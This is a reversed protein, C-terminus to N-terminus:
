VTWKSVKGVSQPPATVVQKFCKDPAVALVFGDGDDPSRRISKKFDKKKILKKLEKGQRNVPEWQRMTLDAELAEPPDSIRIGHLTEAAEFYMETVLDDYLKKDYPNGGFHVENIVLEGPNRDTEFLERLELSHRCTDILGAGGGADIRMHLKRVGKKALTKAMALVAHFYEKSDEHYFQKARWVTNKWRVYMTGYDIGSRAIDIGFTARSMDSKEFAIETRKRAAIYRGVPVVTMDSVNAPAIGLVRWMFENDPQFITGVPLVRNKTPIPFDLQFTFNDVNHEQVVDCHSEIMSRVYERQVANPVVERGAVVNPHNICSMRFSVVNADEHITHFKSSRTKPNAMMLVISIGGSTMGPIADFVVPDVGEAEDLVFMQFPAHLGQIRESGVGKSNTVARGKIFHKARAYIEITELIRGSLGKGERDGKLEQWLNDKLADWTPAYMMITSPAFCDFFHCIMGEAIKTNHEYFETLYTDYVPVEIAVTPKDGIYEISKVKEWRTGPLANKHVWQPRDPRESIQQNKRTVIPRVVADLKAVATEKGYIGIEDIFKLIEISSTTWLVWADVGKKYSRRTHVGFRLLLHAVDDVLQRSKSCYGIEKGYNAGSVSAWGDTSFLRSLFIALQERPLQFVAPPVYKEGALKEMMGHKRMLNILPNTNPKGTRGDPGYAIYDYQNLKTLRCGMQRVCQKYEDLQKGPAQSFRVMGRRLGGDGILYALLKVEHDPMSQDGFAPLAEPVAVLDGESINSMACWEGTEIKPRHGTRFAGKTTWLPHNDTRALRKGTETVLEYVPKVGNDAALANAAITKGSSNLTLLAFKTGILDQAEVRRGNALTIMDDIIVCKGTNHGAEMRIYNQIIQDPQWYKLDVKNIRGAEYDRKEFQQRLALTYAALIEVQGPQDLGQGQWPSWKLFHKLYEDPKFRYPGFRKTQPAEGYIQLALRIARERDPGPPM